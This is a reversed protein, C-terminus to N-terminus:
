EVRLTDQFSLIVIYFITPGLRATGTISSPGGPEGLLRPAWVV